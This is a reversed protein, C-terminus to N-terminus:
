VIVQLFETHAPHDRMIGRFHHTQVKTGQNKVGRMTMCLHTAEIVIGVGKPTITHEIADAIQQGLHEQVQLRRTFMDIIRPIKSFGIIVNNPIYGIHMVGWFPLLHHECLSHFALDKMIVMDSNETPFIADNVIEELTHDYGSTLEKMTERWREPTKLLGPRHPDEGMEKLLATMFDHM